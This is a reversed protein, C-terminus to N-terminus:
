ETRFHTLMMDGNCENIKSLKQENNLKKKQSASMLLYKLQTAPSSVVKPKVPTNGDVNFRRGPGAM